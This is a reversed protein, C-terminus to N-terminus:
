DQYGGQWVKWPATGSAWTEQLSELDRTTDMCQWYGQHRYAMLEGAESIRKLPDKELVCGADNNLYNFLRRDFVYFGGNVMAGQNGVKESFRTIRDGDFHLDGFKAPPYVATLTALKGHARHFDILENVNLDTVGDGYTMLFESDDGLYREIRKIRAGTMLDQGTYAITVKPCFREGEDHFRVEGNATSSFDVTFDHSYAELNLFFEKVVDSKYGTCLIFEEHGFHAYYRMIHWLIPFPGVPIMPKPLFDTVKGFRSGYGGALIVVKM